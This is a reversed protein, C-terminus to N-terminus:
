LMWSFCALVLRLGIYKTCWGSEDDSISINDFASHRTDLVISGIFVRAFVGLSAAVNTGKKGSTDSRYKPLFLFLIPINLCRKNHTHIVQLKSNHKLHPVGFCLMICIELKTGQSTFSRPNRPQFAAGISIYSFDERLM